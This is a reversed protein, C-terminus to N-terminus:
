AISNVPLDQQVQYRLTDNKHHTKTKQGFKIILPTTSIFRTNATNKKTHMINRVPTAFAAVNRNGLPNFPFQLVLKKHLYL